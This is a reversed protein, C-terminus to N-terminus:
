RELSAVLSNFIQRYSVFDRKERDSVVNTTLVQRLSVEDLNCQETLREAYIIIAVEEKM